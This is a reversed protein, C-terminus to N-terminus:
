GIGARGEGEGGVAKLDAVEDLFENMKGLTMKTHVDVPMRRALVHEVVQSLDGAIDTPVRQPDTFGM